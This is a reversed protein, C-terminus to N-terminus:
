GRRFPSRRVPEHDLLAELAVEASPGSRSPHSAAVRRLLMLLRSPRGRYDSLFVVMATVPVRRM